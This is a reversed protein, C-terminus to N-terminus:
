FIGESRILKWTKHLMEAAQNKSKFENQKNTKIKQKGQPTDILTIRYHDGDPASEITGLYISDWFVDTPTGFGAVNSLWKFDKFRFGETLPKGKSIEALLEEFEKYDIHGKKVWIFLLKLADDPRSKIVKFRSDPDNYEKLIKM